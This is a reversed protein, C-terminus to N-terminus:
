IKVIKYLFLRWIYRVFLLFSHYRFVLMQIVLLENSLLRNIEVRVDLVLSPYSDVKIFFERQLTMRNSDKM